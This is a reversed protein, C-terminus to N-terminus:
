KKTQKLKKVLEKQEQHLLILEEVPQLLLDRAISDTTM